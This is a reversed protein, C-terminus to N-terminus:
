EKNIKPNFAVYIETSWLILGFKEEYTVYGKSKLEELIHLNKKMDDPLIWTKSYIKEVTNFVSNAVDIIKKINSLSLVPFFFLGGKHLYDPAEMIAQTVLSTGDVGAECSTQSFWPSIKAVDEAVGSIDDIIYDFKHGLWPDYIGGQRVECLIDNKLANHKLLNVADPSLDSAFLEFDIKGGKYLSLGVLGSGCGLDLIKGPKIIYKSVSEILAESTGTPRFVNSDLDVVISCNEDLNYTYTSECITM